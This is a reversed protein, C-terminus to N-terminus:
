RFCPSHSRRARRPKKLAGRVFGMRCWRAGNFVRVDGLDRRTVGRYVSPPLTVDYLAESGSAEIKLGYAYDAPKEATRGSLSFVFFIIFVFVQTLKTM